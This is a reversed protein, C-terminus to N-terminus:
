RGRGQRRRRGGVGTLTRCLLWGVVPPPPLLRSSSAAYLPVTREDECLQAFTAAFDLLVSGEDDQGAEMSALQLVQSFRQLSFADNERAEKKSGQRLFPSLCIFFIVSLHDEEEV